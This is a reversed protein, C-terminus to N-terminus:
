KKSKLLSCFCNYVSNHNLCFFFPVSNSVMSTNKIKPLTYRFRSSDLSENLVACVDEAETQLAGVMADSLSKKSKKSDLRKKLRNSL